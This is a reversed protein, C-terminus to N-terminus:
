VYVIDKEIQKLFDPKISRKPVVDVKTNFLAEIENAMEIFDLGMQGKLEIAIDIDSDQLAEGRAYSGFVGIEGIPYKKQLDPKHDRLIKVIKELSYM